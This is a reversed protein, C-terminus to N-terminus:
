CMEHGTRYLFDKGLKLDYFYKELKLLKTKIKMNVAVILKSYMKTNPTLYPDFYMNEGRSIRKVWGWKNFLNNKVGSWQSNINSTKRELKISSFYYKM